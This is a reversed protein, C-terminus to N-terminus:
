GSAGRPADRALADWGSRRVVSGAGDTMWRVSSYVM